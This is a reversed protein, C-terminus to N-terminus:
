SVANVRIGKPAWEVALSKVMHIVAAKSFNYPTQPQPVNIVVGSMSGIMVISSGPKMVKASERAVYFSGMINIDCLQIYGDMDSIFTDTLESLANLKGDETSRHPRFTYFYTDSFRYTLTWFNIPHGACAVRVV